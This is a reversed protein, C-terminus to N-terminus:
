LGLKGWLLAEFVFAAFLVRWAAAGSDAPALQQDPGQTENINATSGAQSPLLQDPLNPAAPSQQLELETSDRRKRTFMSM